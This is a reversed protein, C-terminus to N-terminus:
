YSYSYDGLYTNNDFITKMWKTNNKTKVSDSWVSERWLSLLDLSSCKKIKQFIESPQKQMLIEQILSTFNFNTNELVDIVIEEAFYILAKRRHIMILKKYKTTYRWVEVNRVFFVPMKVIKELTPLSSAFCM